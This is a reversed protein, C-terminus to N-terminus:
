GAEKIKNLIGSVKNIKFIVKKNNIEKILIMATKIHNVFKSEVRIVGNKGNNKLIRVGAIGYNLTGLFSLTEKKIANEVETDKFKEDSVMEFALYRKKERLSPLLSKM